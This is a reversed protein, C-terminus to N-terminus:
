RLLKDGREEIRAGELDIYEITSLRGLPKSFGGKGVAVNEVFVSIFPMM